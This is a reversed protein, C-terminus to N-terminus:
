TNGSTTVGEVTERLKARYQRMSRAVKSKQEETWERGTQCPKPLGLRKRERCARQALANKSPNSIRKKDSIKRKAEDSLPIGKNWAPRYNARRSKVIKRVTDADRKKGTWFGPKGIHSASMRKRTDASIIRGPSGDGGDTANVLDSLDKYRYLSIWSREVDGLNRDDLVEELVGIIPHSGKAIVSRIWNCLHPSHRNHRTANYIHKSYRSSLSETTKGIYRIMGNRPDILSYIIGSM